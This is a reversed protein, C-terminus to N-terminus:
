DVNMLNVEEAKMTRIQARFATVEREGPTATRETNM